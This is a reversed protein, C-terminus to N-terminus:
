NKKLIRNKWCLYNFCQFLFFSNYHKKSNILNQYLNKLHHANIVDDEKVTKSNLIDMVYNKMTTKLWLSQPDAITKKNKFVLKTSLFKNSFRKMLYRQSGKILKYKNPMNLVMQVFNHDLLPIRTETSCRMSARDVYRLCRPIKTYMLDRYQANRLFSKFPRKFNFTNRFEFGLNTNLVNSKDYESGDETINNNNFLKLLSGVIFEYPAVTEQDKIIGNLKNEINKFGDKHMDLLWAIQYYKYGAFIEDGGSGDLIVRCNNKFSEYLHNQSVIRLSSFPEFQINLVKEFENILEDNKIKSSFNKFSLESSIQNAAELESFKKEEYDFTFTNTPLNANKCAAALFCSDNGGSIHIGIKRDGISYKKFIDATKSFIKKEIEFYKSKKIDNEEDIFKEIEYYKKQDLNNKEFKLYAGPSVQYIDKFWTEDTTNVMGLNLYRNTEYLNEIKQIKKNYFIPPIESSFTLEKTNKNYHFYLPKIGFRDRILFVKNNKEDILCISFMGDLLNIFDLGFKSYLYPIIEGDCNSKFNIDKLYKEKLSLFNYIEGNYIVKVKNKEDYFPQEANKSLDVISLRVMGIQYFNGSSQQFSDPGRYEMAKLMKKVLSNDFTKNFNIIGAIGCM